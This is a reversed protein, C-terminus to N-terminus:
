CVFVIGFFMLINNKGKVYVVFGFEGLRFFFKDKNTSCVGFCNDFFCMGVYLFFSRVVVIMKDSILVGYINGIFKNRKIVVIIGDFMFIFDDVILILCIEVIM